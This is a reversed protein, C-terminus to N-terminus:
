LIPEEGETSEPSCTLSPAPPFQACLCAVLGDITYTEAQAIKGESVGLKRLTATTIPGISCALAGSAEFLGAANSRAAEAEPASDDLLAFLNRATSSSSFTIADVEGAALEGRLQALRGAAGADTPAQTRYAPAVDVACGYRRLLDPLAERAVEARPILVREGAKLGKARMADFVAEARYTEPVADAAIGHQGLARATAPGIAAVRIGALARADCPKEASASEKRQAALRDFFAGVGNASTFVVWNYGSLEAIARDLADFSTPSAFEITPFEEVAAGLEELRRTLSSAQTRSRTVVIRRGHLPRHELWAIRNRLQAVPGVVIMVPAAFGAARAEESVTALKAVLVRQRPTTGWQVLAISTDPSVGRECLGAVINPLNRMGMYFCVTDGRSVLSALADWDVASAKKTPDENGTVFTVSSSVGRHTVPIGAYAPAAIGSTVGPVVEFPVGAARLALAEEGGRGFVFPDGGKLRVISGTAAGASADRAAGTRRAAHPAFTGAEILRSLKHAEDILLGNIQDQTPHEAFGVKGVDVRRADAPAHRLLEPNALHDVVLVDAEGILQLGRATILGPDGPGAGVLYVCVNALATTATTDKGGM